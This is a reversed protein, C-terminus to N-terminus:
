LGTRVHQGEGIADSLCEYVNWGVGHIVIRQDGQGPGSVGPSSSATHSRSPITITSM